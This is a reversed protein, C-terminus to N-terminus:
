ECVSALEAICEDLNAFTGVPLLCDGLKLMAHDCTGSVFNATTGHVGGQQMVPLLDLVAREVVFAHGFVMLKM